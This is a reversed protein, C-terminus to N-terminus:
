VKFWTIEPAPSGKADCELVKSRGVEIVTSRPLQMDGITPAVQIEVNFDRKDEGAANSAVCTYRGADAGSSKLLHLRQGNASLVIQVHQQGRRTKRIERVQSGPEAAIPRGDRLWEVTPEPRGFAPCSLSTRAGRPVAVSDRIGEREIFPPATFTLTAHIQM